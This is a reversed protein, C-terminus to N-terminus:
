KTLCLINKADFEDRYIGAGIGALVAAGVAGAYAGHIVRVPIGCIEEILSIWMPDESPGGVMVARDAMIGQAKLQELKGQLMRVTGEMIARAIDPLAFSRIHEDDPAELMNIQLGGAGSSSEAALGSLRQFRDEGTGIYREIYLSIRESLSTVSSMVAWNGKPALFPDVLVKADIGKQRSSVPTFVVWSTGCSLLMEGEELVGVGRAASPHDFTGLVVPTGAPVGCLAAVDEKIEGLISGANGVPPVRDTDLGLVQLVEKMYGGKEQDLLYFPTGASASIGWKGTLVYYLYETSMAVMGCRELLELQHKKIYCLQALPFGKGSFPWGIRKYLSDKDAGETGALVGKAETDARQDQWGIIPTLPKGARDVLVLNGSASSACVSAIKGDTAEKALERMACFCANLYGETDLEVVGPRPKRYFFAAKASAKIKGGEEMLVGKVSSTGIDLGIMYQM